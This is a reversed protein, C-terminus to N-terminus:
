SSLQGIIKEWKNLFGEAQDRSLSTVGPKDGYEKGHKEKYKRFYEADIPALVDHLEKQTLVYYCPGEGHKTPLYVFVWPRGSPAPVHGGVVWQKQSTTKVEVVVVKGNAESFAVVDAQKANGYTVAATVGRRHLEAAVFFEGAISLHYKEQQRGKM